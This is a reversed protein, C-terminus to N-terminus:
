LLFLSFRIFDKDELGELTCGCGQREILQRSIRCEFIPGRFYEIASYCRERGCQRLCLHPACNLESTFSDIGLAHTPRYRHRTANRASFSLRKMLSPDDPGAKYHVNPGLSHHNAALDRLPGEILSRLKFRHDVVVLLASGYRMASSHVITVPSVAGIKRFIISKESQFLSKIDM